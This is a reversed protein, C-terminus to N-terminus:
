TFIVKKGYRDRLKKAIDARDQDESSPRIGRKKIRKKPKVM